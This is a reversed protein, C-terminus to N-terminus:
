NAYFKLATTLLEASLYIKKTFKQKTGLSTKSFDQM